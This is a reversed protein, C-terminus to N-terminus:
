EAKDARKTKKQEAQRVRALCLDDFERMTMKDMLGASHLGEATEHVSAMVSSGNQKSM